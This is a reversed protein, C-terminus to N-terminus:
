QRTREGFEALTAALMRETLAVSGVGVREDNGHFMSLSQAFRMDEEFLGVGYATVGRQRFFRGDTLVPTLMPVLTAPGALDNAAADIAEWLPGGTPSENAPFDLDDIIEMREFLAPGLAKRFQDDVDAVDQGPTIRIDLSASGLDPITNQKEGAEMLTPAVTLHTCAHVWRAFDPDDLEAIAGDIQEPDTLRSVLEDPLGIATIFEIWGPSIDVPTPTSALLAIAEAMGVLANDAGYPQSGHSPTGPLRMSRWAPGKEAVTVPLTLGEATRFGPTAVETLLYDCAVLDWREAVLYGAGFAGGAEEDAVAAFVLDGPLPPLDGRLYPRFVAAMAATLNLMDVAGRGWVFGDIIEAGFPNHQWNEETAPVVDLHPLLALTPADPDTGAVRYVVSQRGPHPEVITGPLGFYDALTTVSRHEHGSDASGDNVCRNRILQQLLAITDTSM